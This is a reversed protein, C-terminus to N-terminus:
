RGSCGGSLAQPVGVPLAPVAYFIIMAHFAQSRAWARTTSARACTSRWSLPWRCRNRLAPGPHRGIGDGLDVAWPLSTPAGYTDDPLGAFFCGLPRHRHRRLDAPRLVGGTSQRVGHALKWIEVAVIGGALAGAISHSPALIPGRLSNASGFLWAGVLAGLASRSSTVRARHDEVSRRRGRAM